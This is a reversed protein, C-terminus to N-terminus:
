DRLLISVREDWPVQGDMHVVNTWAQRAVAAYVRQVAPPRFEIAAPVPKHKRRYLSVLAAAIEADDILERAEADVYVAAGSADERTSDYVVLFARGNDRINSSHQAEARSIWYFTAGERAFYVPSNWPRGASSVTAITAYEIADLLRDVAARREDESEHRSRM